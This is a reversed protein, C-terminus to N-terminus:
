PRGRATRVKVTVKYATATRIAALQEAAVETIRDQLGQRERLPTTASVKVRRGRVRVRHDDVGDVQGVAAGVTRRLGRRTLETRTHEDVTDVRVARRRGSSLAAWLLVLGIVAIGAAVAMIADDGWQHTRLERTMSRQPWVVPANGTGVAVVDIAVAAGAAALVLSVFAVLFRRPIPRM